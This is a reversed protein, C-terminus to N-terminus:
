ADRSLSIIPTVVITINPATAGTLSLQYFPSNTTVAGTATLPFGAVNTTTAGTTSSYEFASLTGGGFSGSAIIRHEGLEAIRAPNGDADVVGNATITLTRELRSM